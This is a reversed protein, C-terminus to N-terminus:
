PIMIGNRSILRKHHHACLIEWKIGLSQALKTNGEIDSFLFTIAGSPRKNM